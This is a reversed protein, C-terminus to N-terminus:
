DSDPRQRDLRYTEILKADSLVRLTSQVEVLCDAPNADPEAGLVKDVIDSLSYAVPSEEILQIVFCALPSLLHTSGSYSDFRIWGEEVEKWIVIDEVSRHKPGSACYNRTAM